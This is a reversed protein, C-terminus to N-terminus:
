HEQDQHEDSRDVGNNGLVGVCAVLGHSVVTAREDLRLCLEGGLKIGQTSGSAAVHLRRRVLVIWESVVVPRERAAVAGANASLVKLRVGDCVGM